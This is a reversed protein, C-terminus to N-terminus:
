AALTNNNVNNLNNVVHDLRNANAGLASRVTGVGDMATNLLDITAAVGIETGTKTPDKYTASAAVLGDDLAKMQTTLDVAMTESSSAGIQFNVAGAMKGGKLLKEGGFTTNSMINGLEKGLADFESQMATKDNTTTTGNAGETALDKMRQLINTVENLAGEATQMM